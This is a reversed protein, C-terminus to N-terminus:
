DGSKHAEAHCMPCVALLDSLDEDGWKGAYVVHHVELPVNAKGCMECVGRARALVQQRKEYWTRSTLYTQYAERRQRLPSRDWSDLPIGNILCDCVVGLTRGVSEFQSKSQERHLEEAVLVSSLAPTTDDSMRDGPRETTAMDGSNARAPVGKTIPLIGCLGSTSM